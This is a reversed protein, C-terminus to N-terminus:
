AATTAWSAHLTLLQELSPTLKPSAQLQAALLARQFASLMDAISVAQKTRYWPARARHAAVDAAAQGHQAYWCVLLSLCLLGFPVTREVARRTRNRAQGVGLIQRAEELCVEVNWRLAYREILETPTAAQDTTVVALQYGDPWTPPRAMIVQVPQTGLVGYWLCRLVTLNM